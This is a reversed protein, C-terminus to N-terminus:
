EIKNLVSCLYERIRVEKEPGLKNRGCNWNYLTKLAINTGEAIDKISIDQERAKNVLERLDIDRNEGMWEKNELWEVLKNMYEKFRIDWVMDIKKQEEDFLKKIEGLKEKDENNTADIIDKMYKNEIHDPYEIKCGLDNCISIISQNRLGELPINLMM